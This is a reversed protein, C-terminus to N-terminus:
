GGGFLLGGAQVTTKVLNRLILIAGFPVLSCLVSLCVRFLLYIFKIQDNM